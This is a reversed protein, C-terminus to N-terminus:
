SNTQQKKKGASENNDPNMGAWSALHKEDPFQDMNAGIEALIYAVGNKGVGPINQLLRSNLELNYEKIQVDMKEDLKDIIDQKQNISEKITQLMFRHHSTLNGKLASAM